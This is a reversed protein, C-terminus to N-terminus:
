FSRLPIIFSLHSFTHNGLTHGEEHWRGLLDTRRNEENEVCIGQGNVFGVVNVGSRKLHNLLKEAAEEIEKISARRPVFPLDDITVTMKEM